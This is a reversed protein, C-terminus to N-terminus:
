VDLQADMSDKEIEAQQKPLIFILLLAICALGAVTYMAAPLGFIDGIRGIAPAAMGGVSVTLGLMIGSALGVRNPLFSQGFAIMTSHPGNLAVAICILLVTAFIPERVQIFLFMLPALAIAGITIIRQFGYRDALKGGILTAAAGAISFITLRISGSAESEMMVGVWYIPIFTTLGYSIISRCFVSASVRNFANWDDIQEKAAIQEETHNTVPKRMAVFIIAAMIGAPIILVLTGKMGFTLLSASAIVPGLAFGINGGVSFVGMGEGKKDGSVLNATKGGEPHFLAIGVGSIMAGAFIMWYANLFGIMALGGGALLIGISMLWPRDGKDGLHGFLPQVVSSVLNAAFVLGAAATYSIDNHLILFPLMAPLAGQNIDTCIHGFMMLYSYKM